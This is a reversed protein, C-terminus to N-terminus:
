SNNSAYKEELSDIHQKLEQLTIVRGNKIDDQSKKLKANFYMAYAVDEAKNSIVEDNTYLQQKENLM